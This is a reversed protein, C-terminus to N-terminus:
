EEGSAGPYLTGAEGAEPAGSGLSHPVRAFPDPHRMLLPFYGPNTQHPKQVNSNGKMLAIDL